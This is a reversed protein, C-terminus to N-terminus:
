DRLLPHFVALRVIFAVGEAACGTRDDFARFASAFGRGAWARKEVEHERRRGGLVVQSLGPPWLLRVFREFLSSLTDAIGERGVAIGADSIAVISPM